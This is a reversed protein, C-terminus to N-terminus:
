YDDVSKQHFVNHLIFHVAIMIAAAYDAEVRTGAKVSGRDTGRDYATDYGQAASLNLWMLATVYDQPAGKGNAYMLGLNSQGVADGQSASSTSRMPMATKLWHVFFGSPPQSIAVRIPQLAIRWRVPM